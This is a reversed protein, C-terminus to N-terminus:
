RKGKQILERVKQGGKHGIKEYFEHGYKEKVVEGGIKGGKKGIEQYFEHGYKESTVEGGKKGAQSVSMGGKASM